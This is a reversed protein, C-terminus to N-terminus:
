TKIVERHNEVFHRNGGSSVWCNNSKVFAEIASGIHDYRADVECLIVVGLVPPILEIRREYIWEYRCNASRSSANYITNTSMKKSSRPM